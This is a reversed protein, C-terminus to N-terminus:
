GEQADRAAHPPHGEEQSQGAAHGHALTLEVQVPM